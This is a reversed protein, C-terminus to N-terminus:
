CRARARGALDGCRRPTPAPRRRGHAVRTRIDWGRAARAPFPRGTADAEYLPRIALGELTRRTLSELPAGKLTKESWRWGPPATPPPSATPSPSSPPKQATPM